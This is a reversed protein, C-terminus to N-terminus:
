INKYRRRLMLHLIGITILRAIILGLIVLFVLVAWGAFDASWLPSAYSYIYMEQKPRSTDSALEEASPFKDLETAVCQVYAPSWSSFRPACIEQAKVFVNGNPNQDGYQKAQWKEVDRSYSAELYVGRGLDTNMHSSVYNQLDNLRQRIVEKDGEEDAVMVASRREVMGINNLRLFTAAVFGAIILLIILQWTKVRQLGKLNRNLRGKDSM